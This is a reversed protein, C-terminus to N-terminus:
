GKRLYGTISTQHLGPCAYRFKLSSWYKWSVSWLLRRKKRILNERAAFFYFRVQPIFYPFCYQCEERINFALNQWRRVIVFFYHLINGFMCIIQAWLKLFSNAVKHCMQNCLNLVVTRFMAVLFAGQYSTREMEILQSCVM